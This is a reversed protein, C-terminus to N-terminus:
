LLRVCSAAAPSLVSTLISIVIVLFAWALIGGMSYSAPIPYDTFSLGITRAPAMSIPSDASPAAAINRKM